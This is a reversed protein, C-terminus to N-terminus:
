AGPRDYAGTAVEVMVTGEMSDVLDELTVLAVAVTVATFGCLGEVSDVISSSIVGSCALQRSVIFSPFRSRRLPWPASDEGGLRM